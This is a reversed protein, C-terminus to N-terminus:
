IRSTSSEGALRTFQVDIKQGAKTTAPALRRNWEGDIPASVSRLCERLARILGEMNADARQPVIFVDPDEGEGDRLVSGYPAASFGYQDALPELVERYLELAEDRTWM